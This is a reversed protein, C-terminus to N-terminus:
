RRMYDSHLAQPLSAAGPMDCFSPKEYQYIAANDCVKFLLPNNLDDCEAIEPEHAEQDCVNENTFDVFCSDPDQIQISWLPVNSVNISASASSSRRSHITQTQSTTEADPCENQMIDTPAMECDNFNTFFQEPVSDCLQDDCSMKSAEDTGLKSSASCSQASNVTKAFSNPEYGVEQDSNMLKDESSEEINEIKKEKFCVHELTSLKEQVNYCNYVPQIHKFNNLAQPGYKILFCLYGGKYLVVIVILLGVGLICLIFILPTQLPTQSAKLDREYQTVICKMEMPDSHDEEYTFVKVAICYSTNPQVNEIREKVRVEQTRGFMDRVQELEGNKFVTIHYYLASHIAILSKFGSDRLYPPVAPFDFNVKLVGFPIESLHVNVPRIKTHQFPQFEESPAWKSEDMETVAKVQAFYSEYINIFDNTLDCTHNTILSCNQAPFWLSKQDDTQNEVPWYNESGHISLALYEVTYRTDNPTDTEAEWMLIHHFNESTFSLNVPPLLVAIVSNLFQHLYLLGVIKFMM